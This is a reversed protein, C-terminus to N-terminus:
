KREAPFGKRDYILLKEFEVKSCDVLYESSYPQNTGSFMYRLTKHYTKFGSKM